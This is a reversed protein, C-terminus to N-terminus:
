QRLMKKTHVAGCTEDVFKHWNVAVGTEVSIQFFLHRDYRHHKGPRMGFGSTLGVQREWYQPVLAWPFSTM